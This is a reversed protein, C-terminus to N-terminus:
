SKNQWGVGLCVVAGNTFDRPRSVYATVYSGQICLIQPQKDSFIVFCKRMRLLNSNLKLKVM